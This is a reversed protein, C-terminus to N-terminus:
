ECRNVPKAQPGGTEQHQLTHHDGSDGEGKVSEQGAADIVPPEPNRDQEGQEKAKGPLARRVEIKM